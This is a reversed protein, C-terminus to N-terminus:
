DSALITGNDLVKSREGLILFTSKPSDPEGKMIWKGSKRSSFEMVMGKPNSTIIHSHQNTAQQNAPHQNTAQQYLSDMRITLTKGKVKVITAPERIKWFCVTVGMCKQPTNYFQEM